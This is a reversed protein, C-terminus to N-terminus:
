NEHQGESNARKILAEFNTDESNWEVKLSDNELGDILMELSSALETAGKVRSNKSNIEISDIKFTNDNPVNSLIARLNALIWSAQQSRKALPRMARRTDLEGQLARQVLQTHSHKPLVEKLISQMENENSVIERSMKQDRVFLSVAIVFLMVCFAGFIQTGLKMAGSTKAGSILPLFNIEPPQRRAIAISIAKRLLDEWPHALSDDWSTTPSFESDESHILQCPENAGVKCNEEIQRADYFVQWGIMQNSQHRILEGRNTTAILFTNSRREAKLPELLLTSTPTIGLIPIKDANLNEMLNQIDGRSIAMALPADKGHVLPLMDEVDIPFQSELEFALEEQKLKGQEQTIPHVLVLQSDLLILIAETKLGFERLSKVALAEWDNVTDVQRTQQTDWRDIRCINRSLTLSFTPKM